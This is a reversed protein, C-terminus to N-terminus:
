SLPEARVTWGLDRESLLSALREAVLFDEISDIDAGFMWPIECTMVGPPLFSRAARLASVRIAYCAGTLYAITRGDLAQALGERDFGGDPALAGFHSVPTTPRTITVCAPAGISLCRGVCDDIDQPRRLPSTPQLLVVIGYRAGQAELADLAHLAVAVSSTDDSALAAPRAFPVECGYARAIRAIEPDETSLIVRDLRTAAQAAAITHAILPAGLFPRLNKGPLRKSGGRAVILGLVDGDVGASM